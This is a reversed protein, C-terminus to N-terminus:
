FPGEQLHLILMSLPPEEGQASLMKHLIARGPDHNLIKIEMIFVENKKKKTKEVLKKEGNIYLFVINRLRTVIALEVSLAM